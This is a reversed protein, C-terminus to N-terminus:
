KSFALGGMGSLFLAPQSSVGIINFEGKIENEINTSNMINFFNISHNYDQLNKVFSFLSYEGIEKVRKLTLYYVDDPHTPPVLIRKGWNGHELKYVDNFKVFKLKLESIDKDLALYFVPHNFNIKKISTIGYYQVQYTVVKLEKSDELQECRNFSLIIKKNERLIPIFYTIWSENFENLDNLVIYLQVNHYELSPIGIKWHYFPINTYGNDDFEPIDYIYYLLKFFEGNLSDFRQGGVILVIKKISSSKLNISFNKVSCTPLTFTIEISKNSNSNTTPGTTILCEVKDRNIIPGTCKDLFDNNKLYEDQAGYFIKNLKEIQDSTEM